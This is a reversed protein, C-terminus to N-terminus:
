NAPHSQGPNSPRLLGELFGELEMTGQAVVRLLASLAELRSVGPELDVVYRPSTGGEEEYLTFLRRRPKTGAGM